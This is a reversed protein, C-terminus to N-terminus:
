NSCRGTAPLFAGAIAYLWPRLKAPDRLQSMRGAAICFVDQVCHAADDRDRLIGCCYDHLRDAYSDYIIALCWPM